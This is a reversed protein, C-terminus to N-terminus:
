KQQKQRIVQAGAFNFVPKKVVQFQNKKTTPETLLPTFLQRTEHVFRPEFNVQAVNTLELVELFLVLSGEIELFRPINTYFTSVNMQILYESGFSEM